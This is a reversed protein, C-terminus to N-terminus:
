ALPALKKNLLEMGAFISSAVPAPFLGNLQNHIDDKAQEIARPTQHYVEQLIECSQDQTLGLYKGFTIWHRLVIQFIHYHNNQSVVAMALKAEQKAMQDAKRGIIPHASLIDYLPALSYNGGKLHQISFNKAHGDTAAMIWFIVLTKFFIRCDEASNAGARLLNMIQLASPGGDAQYKLLSNVGLAQCMDEQPLRILTGAQKSYIRDFREVVLAKVGGNKKGFVMPFCQAVPIGYANVIRSCLWENEVSSSMDARMNGVLGLPLKLIRTTPTSGTPLWWQNDFHLLANKEQAGAISLRLEGGTQHINMATSSTTNRLIQAIDEDDLPLGEIAPLGASTEDESLLQIAGVCDRGVAALLEPATTGTAQFKTALRRRIIDADPLLNDFYNLVKDGKLVPNGPSMPLSLSLARAFENEYWSEDYQFSNKAPHWHGVLEGNMWVGLDSIQKKAM